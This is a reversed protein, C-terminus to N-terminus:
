SQVQGKEGNAGDQKKRKAADAMMKQQTRITMGEAASKKAIRQFEWALQAVLDLTLDKGTFAISYGGAPMAFAAKRVTVATSASRGNIARHLEERSAKKALALELHKRQKDHDPERCIEYGKYGDLQGSRVAQKVEPCGDGLKLTRSLHPQKKKLLAALESVGIRKEEMISTYADCLEMPSLAAHHVDLSLQLIRLDAKSLRQALVIVLFDKIGVLSGSRWRREGDLLIFKKLNACWMVILPVLQGVALMNQGLEQLGSQDFFKRPQEPDPALQDGPLWKADPVQIPNTQSM